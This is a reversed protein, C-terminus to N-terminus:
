PRGKHYAGANDYIWQREEKSPFNILVARRRGHFVFLSGATVASAHADKLASVFDENKGAGGCAIVPVNVADSVQRIMEIDYGTQTGDLDIANLLIEGAGLAESEVALEVPPKGITKSGCRVYTNIKGLWNKKYDIVAVVAQAGFSESISNVVEPHEVMATNICVKEAGRSFIDRAQELTTIGGGVAFPMLCQDAITQILDLPPIRREATATIDLFILEDVEKENFIKIANIPDGIYTHDRFKIGKVLGKGKLLLCPIIRPLIM